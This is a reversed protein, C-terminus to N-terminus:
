KNIVSYSVKTHCAHKSHGYGMGTRGIIENPGAPRWIVSYTVLAETSLSTFLAMPNRTLVISRGFSQGLELLANPNPLMVVTLHPCVNINHLSAHTSGPSKM